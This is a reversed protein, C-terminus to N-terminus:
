ELYIEAEGTGHHLRAMKKGLGPRLISLFRERRLLARIQPVAQTAAEDGATICRDYSGFDAWHVSKVDPAVVLDAMRRLHSVLTSDKIADARVMIDVAVVLDAGLLFAPLVPIKDM